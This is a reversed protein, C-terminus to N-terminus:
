GMANAAQNIVKQGDMMGYAVMDIVEVPIGSGALKKQFDNLMYRVQPGLLVCDIHQGQLKVDAESAPCAFIEYDLGQKDAADQMKKVLISTSMGAACCLMITKKDM